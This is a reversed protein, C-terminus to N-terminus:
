AQPVSIFATQAFANERGEAHFIGSGRTVLVLHQLDKHAHPRIKWDHLRSREAISEIHLFREDVDHTAEGYLFYHPIGRRGMPLDYERSPFHGLLGTRKGDDSVGTLPM